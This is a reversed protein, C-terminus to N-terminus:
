LIRFRSFLPFFDLYYSIPQEIDHDLLIFVVKNRVRKLIPILSVHGM